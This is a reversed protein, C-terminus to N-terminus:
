NMVNNSLSKACRTPASKDLGKTIVRNAEIAFINFVGVRVSIVTMISVKDNILRM